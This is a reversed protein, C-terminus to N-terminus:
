RSQEESTKLQLFWDFNKLEPVSLDMYSPWHATDERNFSLLELQRQLIFYENRTKHYAEVAMNLRQASDRIQALIDAAQKELSKLQQRLFPEKAAKLKRKTKEFIYIQRERRIWKAAAKCQELETKFREIMKSPEDFFFIGVKHRLESPPEKDQKLLKIAEECAKIKEKLIQLDEDLDDIRRQLVWGELTPLQQLISCRRERYAKEPDRGSGYVKLASENM